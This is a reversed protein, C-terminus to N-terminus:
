SDFFRSFVLCWLETAHSLEEESVMEFPLKSNGVDEKLDKFDQQSSSVADLDGLIFEALEGWLTKRNSLIRKSVYSRSVEKYM